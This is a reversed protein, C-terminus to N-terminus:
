NADDRHLVLDYFGILKFHALKVRMKVTIVEVIHSHAAEM